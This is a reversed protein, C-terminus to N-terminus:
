KDPNTKKIFEAINELFLHHIRRIEWAVRKEFCIIAFNKGRELCFNKGALFDSDGSVIIIFDLNEINRAIDFAIEVDLNCKYKFDSKQNNLYIKKLPKTIVEFGIKEIEDRIRENEMRAKGGFPMGMYYKCVKLELHKGLFNKFKLWDIKWNMKRQIYFLNADDVFIGTRKNKNNELIDLM